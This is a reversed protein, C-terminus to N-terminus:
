KNFSNFELVVKLLELVFYQYIQYFISLEDILM